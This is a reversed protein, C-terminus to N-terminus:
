FLPARSSREAGELRKSTKAKTGVLCNGGKEVIVRLTEQKNHLPDLTVLANELRVHPSGLLARVESVECDEKKGSAPIM